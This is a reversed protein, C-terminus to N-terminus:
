VRPNLASDAIAHRSGLPRFIEVTPPSLNKLTAPVIDELEGKQISNVKTNTLGEDDDTEKFNENM